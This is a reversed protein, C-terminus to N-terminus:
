DRYILHYLRQAWSARENPIEINRGRWRRVSVSPRVFTTLYATVLLAGGIAAIVRLFTLGPLFLQLLFAGFFLVASVMMLQNPSAPRLRGLATTLSRIPSPRRRRFRLPERPSPDPQVNLSELLEEIEREYQNQGAM